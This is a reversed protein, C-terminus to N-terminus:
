DSINENVTEVIITYSGIPDESENTDLRTIILALKLDYSTGPNEIILSHIGEEQQSLVQPDSTLSYAHPIVDAIQWVQCHLKSLDGAERITVNVATTIDDTDINIEIFDM